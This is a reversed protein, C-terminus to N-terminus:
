QKPHSKNPPFRYGTIPNNLEDLFYMTDIIVSINRLILKSVPQYIIFNGNLIEYPYATSREYYYISDHRIDWVPSEEGLGGWIGILKIKLSDDLTM